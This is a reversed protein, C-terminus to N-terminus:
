SFAKVIPIGFLAFLLLALTLFSILKFIKKGYKKNWKILIEEWMRGGDLPGIPLLNALGVGLSLIFMWNLFRGINVLFDIISFSVIKNSFSFKYVTRVNKIGIFPLSKNEPHQSLTLNYIGKSTYITITQNPKKTQLLKALDLISHISTNDIKQIYGTLNASYAPTGNIVQYSIGIPILIKSILFSFLIILIFFVSATIFNGFSGATYVRLKEKLSKKELKKEDLDVFAGLPFFFFLIIGYNKIKVKSLSAMIAHMTEHPFIVFFIGFVWFWFPISIIPKPYEIGSVTPLVLGFTQQLKLSSNILWFITFLSAFIGIGISLYGLFEFFKKHKTSLEIIKEKGKKWRRIVIGKEFEVNKRDKWLLISIIGFFLIISIIELNM